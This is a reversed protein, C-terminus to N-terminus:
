TESELVAGDEPLNLWAAYTLLNVTEGHGTPLGDAIHRRIVDAEAGLLKAAQAVTLATPDIRGASIEEPHEDPTM